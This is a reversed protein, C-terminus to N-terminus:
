TFGERNDSVTKLLLVINERDASNFYYLRNPSLQLIVERDPLVMRSFNRGKSDFVVLVKKTARSM